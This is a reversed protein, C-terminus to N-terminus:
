DVVLVKQQQEEEPASPLPVDPVSPLAKYYPEEAAPAVEKRSPV